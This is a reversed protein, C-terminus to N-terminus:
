LVIILKNLTTLTVLYHEYFLYLCQTLIFLALVSLLRDMSAGFVTRKLLTLATFIRLSLEVVASLGSPYFNRNEDDIKALVALYFRWLKNSVSM